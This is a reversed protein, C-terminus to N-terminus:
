LFAFHAQSFFVMTVGLILLNFVMSGQLWLFNFTLGNEDVQDRFVIQTVWFFLCTHVLALLTWFVRESTNYAKNQVFNTIEAGLFVVFSYVKQGRSYLGPNSLATEASLEQEFTALVMIPAATFVLNYGLTYISDFFTSGSFASLTSFFFSCMVFCFNKYFSYLVLKALRNYSWTGHVVLLRTLHAFQGVAYDAAMVAQSGEKGHVGVGVDAAQLMSVDNAGDGVGLAVCSMNKKLGTLHYQSRVATVVESKQLPSVRCCLVATCMLGARVFQLRLDPNLAHSLASGDIVLAFQVDDKANLQARQEIATVLNEIDTGPQEMSIRHVYMSKTLLKSSYGISIATEVMDGTLVWTAIGAERFLQLAEPVGEQLRDEIATAGLLTMGSEIKEAVDALVDEKDDGIHAAAADAAKAWAKFEDEDIERSAICLTRLGEQAFEQLHGLTADVLSRGTASLREIVKNDAGKLMLRLSGDPMRVVVSMRKRASSFENIYLIQFHMEDGSGVRVRAIGGTAGLFVVGLAAAGEVLAAEDPSSAQYHMKGDKEDAQVTHCVALSILFDLIPSAGGAEVAEAFRPNVSTGSESGDQM